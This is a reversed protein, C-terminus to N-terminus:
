TVSTQAVIRQFMDFCRNIWLRMKDTKKQSRFSNKCQEIQTSTCRLVYGNNNYSTACIYYNLQSVQEYRSKWESSLGSAELSYKYATVQIRFGWPTLEWIFMCWAWLKGTFLYVNLFIMGSVWIDPWFDVLIGFSGKNEKAM